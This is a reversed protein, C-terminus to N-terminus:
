RSDDDSAPASKAIAVILCVLTTLGVVVGWGIWDGNDPEGTLLILSAGIAVLAGTALLAWGAGRNPILEVMGFHRRRVFWPGPDGAM